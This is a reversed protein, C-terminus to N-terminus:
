PRAKRSGRPAEASTGGSGPQSNQGEAQPIPLAKVPANLPCRTPAAASKAAGTAM